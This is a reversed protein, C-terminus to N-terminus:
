GGLTSLLAPNIFLFYFAVGNKLMHLLISPWLSGSVVRLLCLVISLAFVDLGVNWQFHVVAFLLSTILISLWLPAYKRLKGFLYGRFLVEEAFPAVIVLSIFALVYESQAAIEAFGTEQTQGYDVFTLFGMAFATVLSTLIFYAVMGAPAWLIDMWTPLRHLGLEERTTPRKKVLWPVGLVLLIALAYIVAAGVTNLITPNIGDFSVGAAQLGSILALILAQALMFGLFVWLPLGLTYLVRKKMPMMPKSQKPPIPPIPNSAQQLSVPTNSSSLSM